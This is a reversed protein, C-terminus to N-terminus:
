GQNKNEQKKENTKRLEYFITCYISSTSSSQTSWKLVAGTKLFDNIKQELSIPNYDKFVRVRIASKKNEYYLSLYFKGRNISESQCAFKFTKGEDLFGNIRDEIIRPSKEIKSFQFLKLEM